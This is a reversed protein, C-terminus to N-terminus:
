GDTAPATGSRCMWAAPRCSEPSGSRPHCESRPTWAASSTARTWNAGDSSWWVDNMRDLSTTRGGMIWMKGDFVVAGHALRPLWSANATALTWNAGDTTWWVDNRRAGDYGGILFLKGDYVLCRHDFRATWPANLTAATWSEGDTSYWVENTQGAGLIWVAGDYVIACHGSRPAWSPDAARTWLLGDETYWVENTNVDNENRGGFVWLRDLFAVSRHAWKPSWAQHDPAAQWEIGDALAAPAVLFTSLFVAGCLVLTSWSNSSVTYSRKSLCM